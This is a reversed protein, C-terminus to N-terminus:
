SRTSNESRFQSSHRLAQVILGFVFVGAFVTPSPEAQEAVVVTSETIIAEWIPYVTSLLAAGLGTLTIAMIPGYYRMSIIAAALGVIVALALFQQLEPDTFLPMEAIETFLLEARSVTGDADPISMSTLAEEGIGLVLTALAGSVFATIAVTLQAVMSILIRGIIAGLIVTGGVVLLHETFSFNTELLQPVVIWGTAAGFIGGAIWGTWALLINKLDYGAITFILGLATVIAAAITVTPDIETM